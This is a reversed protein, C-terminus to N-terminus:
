NVLENLQAKLSNIDSEIVKLIDKHVQTIEKADSLYTGLHGNEILESIKKYSNDQGNRINIFNTAFLRNLDFINTLNTLHIQEENLALYTYPIVKNYDEKFRWWINDIQEFSYPKDQPSVHEMEHNLEVIKDVDFRILATKLPLYFLELRRELFAIKQSKTTQQTNKETSSMISYTFTVYLITALVLFLSSSLDVYATQDSPIRDAIQHSLVVSGLLLFELLIVLLASLVLIFIILQYNFIKKLVLIMEM